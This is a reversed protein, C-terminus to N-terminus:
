AKLRDPAALISAGAGLVAIERSSSPVHFPVSLTSPFISLTVNISAFLGSPLAAPLMALTSSPPASNGIVVIVCVPDLRVSSTLSTPPTNAPVALAPVVSNTPVKVSPPTASGSVKRRTGSPRFHVAKHGNEVHQTLVQYQVDRR